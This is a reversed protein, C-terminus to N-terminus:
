FIYSSRTRPVMSMCLYLAGSIQPQRTALIHSGQRPLLSNSAASMVVKGGVKEVVDPAAPSGALETAVEYLNPLTWRCALICGM